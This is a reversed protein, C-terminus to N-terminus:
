SKKKATASERNTFRANGLGTGITLAGWHRVDQMLPVQSLGQVVADNHLLVVTEHEGICPIAEQLRTPLHFNKSEWNGPLNQAGREIPHVVVVPPREELRTDLPGVRVDREAAHLRAAPLQDELIRGALQPLLDGRGAVHAM